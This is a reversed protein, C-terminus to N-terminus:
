HVKSRGNEDVERQEALMWSVAHKTRRVVKTSEEGKTGGKLFFGEIRQNKEGDNQYGNPVRSRM